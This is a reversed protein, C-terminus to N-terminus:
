QTPAEKALESEVLKAVQKRQEDSLVKDFIMGVFEKLGEIALDDDLSEVVQGAMFYGDMYRMASVMDPVMDGVILPKEKPAIADMARKSLEAFKRMDDLLDSVTGGNNGNEREISYQKRISEYIEGVKIASKVAFKIEPSHLGHTKYTGMFPLILEPLVALAVEDIITKNNM